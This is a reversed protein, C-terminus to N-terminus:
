KCYHSVAKAEAALPFNPAWDPPTSMYNEIDEPSVDLDVELINEDHATWLSTLGAKHTRVVTSAFFDRAVAQVINETLKGGYSPVRRGGVEATYETKMWPKGDKKSKEMRGQARVNKYIMKRGNPLNMVFDGGVSSRFNEELKQWMATITPSAARFDRVLKRAFAGYGPVKTTVDTFPDVIEEFEPDTETLDMGSEKLATAIFKEWGAQYGLQLVQIKILKYENTSKDMKGGTYGFNARAFAEYVSLGSRVEELMKRNGSLWALVRPEIQALDSVIMKKGPRPVFLARFDLAFRVEDPWKGTKSHEKIYRAVAKDDQQLLGSQLGFAPYRRMNQFNIKNDGSWRGTHAGWYKLGFPITGDPRLRSKMTLFSKYLKNISRWATVALIWPHQPAYLKEWADYEEESEAKVPCCPIGVRRCQEAICKSSTPSLKFDDWDEDDPDQMWPIMKETNAKMEHSDCIYRNLLEVDVQIGRLGQDITLNSLIREDESWKHAHDTWIKHPWYADRRAYALMATQQEPTFDQPWRKGEADAREAKSVRVGYLAEVANDLARQNCLFSTLNATCHWEAPTFKPIFQRRQMESIVSFDFKKNHSLLVRGELASWTMDRPHGAWCTEGDTVSVMYCDFLEHRCYQEDILSKISYKLKPAYYTETDILIPPPM